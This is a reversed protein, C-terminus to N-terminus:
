TLLIQERYMMNITYKFKSIANMFDTKQILYFHESNEWLFQESNEAYITKLMPAIIASLHNKHKKLYTVM